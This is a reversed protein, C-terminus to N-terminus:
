WLDRIEHLKSVGLSVCQKDNYACDVLRRCPFHGLILAPLYMMGLRM